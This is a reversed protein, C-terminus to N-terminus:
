WANDGFVRMAVKANPTQVKPTPTQDITCFPPLMAASALPITFAAM